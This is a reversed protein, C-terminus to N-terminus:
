AMHVIMIGVSNLAIKEKSVAGSKNDKSVVDGKVFELRRGNERKLMAEVQYKVAAKGCVLFFICRVTEGVWWLMKRCNVLSVEKGQIHQM